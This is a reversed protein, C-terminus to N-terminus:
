EGVARQLGEAVAAVYPELWRGGWRPAALAQLFGMTETPLAFAPAARLVPPVVPVLAELRAVVYRGNGAALAPVACSLAAAFAECPAATHVDGPSPDADWQHAAAVAAPSLLIIITDGGRLARHHQAHLWPLPGWAAAGSGGGPAAMVSLGLPRLSALLACAAREAVPEVAHVLLARQGRLPAESSYNVGLSKLWGKINEKKLLLLFLLCAAGLLVGMWALVWRARQYQHIPCAWLTVATSNEHHWIQRCQGMAVDQRLEQELLGPQGWGTSTFSALPTCAGGELVCLSGNGHRELLLIDDPRGPLARDRLCQSLRVQRHSWVQVCLNPHPQLGGLEQSAQEMASYQLSPLAQCPGTPAPQWCPILEALLDCPSSLSCTLAQAKTHLVLQSHAWLRQWAEADHSFPCLTARLPDQTELWVQLCLCPLVEEAPLSYSMNSSVTVVRGPGGTGHSQNHYLRLTYSHGPMAGQVEIVVEKPGPFVQLRPAQCQPVASQAVPWSCDPVRQQQSLRWHGHTTYAMVRLESGLPAEFCRFTVWGLLQGPLVTGIPVWVEVAVCRSSTYTHAALLLVGSTNHQASPDGHEPSGRAADGGHEAAPIRPAGTGRPVALRLRAELCPSCAGPGTCRLAPELRLRSLALGHPPGQPEMGCLVDPDLLRCALGQTCALTDHHAGRGGTVVLVLVLPVLAGM